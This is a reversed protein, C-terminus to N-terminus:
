INWIFQFKRKKTIPDVCGVEIKKIFEDVIVRNLKTIKKYKKIIKEKDAKKEKEQELKQIEQEIIKLRNECDDKEAKNKNKLFSFESDDIIGNVRDDYLMALAKEKKEVVRRAKIMEERLALIKNETQSEVKKAYYNQEVKCKDYYNKLIKNIEDMVVTELYDYRVSRKNICSLGGSDHKNRCVLYAQKGSKLTAINKQFVKGCCQCYVKRSFMQIEGKKTSKYRGRNEFRSQVLEWTEKDVIANHCHPVRIWKEKPIKIQTKDKYSKGEVKGQVLTGIYVEDQLIKRIMETKWIPKMPIILTQDVTLEESTLNNYKMIEEKDIYFIQTIKELTDDKEVRYAVRKYIESNSCYLKSGQQKKYEYPTPIKNINLYHAVKYYGNGEAYMSFIKRVINASVNDIVLHYKDEPDKIYGYPAFSGTFLGNEKKNRLIMRTNHSQDEVQWENVLGSIQRTKKNGREATDTSDVLGVFRVNWSIFEKHLYKEIMEMSRSFRSLSKCLFIETNGCECFTLAKLWEPRNDDAGSIGEECFIGVVKWKRKECESLLYLLQNRISRSIDGDILDGDEVSLRIYLIVRFVGNEEIVRYGYKQPKFCDPNNPGTINLIRRLNDSIYELELPALYEKIKKFEITDNENLEVIQTKKSSDAEERFVNLIM